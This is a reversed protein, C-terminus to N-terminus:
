EDGSRSNNAPDYIERLAENVEQESEHNSHGQERMKENLQRESIRRLIAEEMGTPPPPRRSDYRSVIEQPEYVLSVPRSGSAPDIRIIMGNALKLTHRGTDPDLSEEAVGPIKLTVGAHHNAAIRQATGEDVVKAGSKTTLNMLGIYIVSETEDVNPGFRLSPNNLDPESDKSGVALFAENVSMAMIPSDNTDINDAQSNFSAHSGFSCELSTEMEGNSISTSVSLVTYYGGLGLRFAPSTM